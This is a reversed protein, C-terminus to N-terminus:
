FPANTHPPARFHSFVYAEVNHPTPLSWFLRRPLRLSPIPLLDRGRERERERENERERALTGEGAGASLAGREGICTIGADFGQWPSREGRKLQWSLKGYRHRCMARRM